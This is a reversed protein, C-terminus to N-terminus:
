RRTKSIYLKQLRRVLIHVQTNPNQLSQQALWESNRCADETMAFLLDFPIFKNKPGYLNHRKAVLSIAEAESLVCALSIKEWHSALWVEFCRCSLCLKINNKVALKIAADLNSKSTDDVDCVCWVEEFPGSKEIKDICAEVAVLANGGSKVFYPQISVGVNGLKRSWGRFYEAETKEGDYMVAIVRGSSRKKPKQRVLNRPEFRSGNDRM